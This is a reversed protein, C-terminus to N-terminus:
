FHTGRVDAFRQTEGFVTLCGHKGFQPAWLPLPFRLWHCRPVLDNCFGITFLADSVRERHAWTYGPVALVGRQPYLGMYSSWLSKVCGWTPHSSHSQVVGYLIVPTVKCMPKYGWLGQRTLFSHVPGIGRRKDFRYRGKLGVGWIGFSVKDCVWQKQLRRTFTLKWM